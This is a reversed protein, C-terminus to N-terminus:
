LTGKFRNLLLTYKAVNVALKRWMYITRCKAYTKMPAINYMIYNTFKQGHIYCTLLKVAVKQQRDGRGDCCPLTNNEADDARRSEIIDRSVPAASIIIM